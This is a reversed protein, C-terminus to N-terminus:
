WVKSLYTSILLMIFRNESVIIHPKIGKITDWEARCLCFATDAEKYLFCISGKAKARCYISTQTYNATRAVFSKQAMCLAHLMADSQWLLPWLDDRIGLWAPHGSTVVVCLSMVHLSALANKLLTWICAVSMGLMPKVNPWRRRRQGLMFDINNRYSAITGSAQIAHCWQWPFVPVVSPATYSKFGSVKDYTTWRTTHPSLSM